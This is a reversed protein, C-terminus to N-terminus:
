QVLSYVLLLCLLLSVMFYSVVNNGSWQGFFATLVVLMLRYRASRTVVLDRYDWWKLATPDQAREDLIERLELQVLPSNM